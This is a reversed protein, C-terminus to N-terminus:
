GDQMLGVFKRMSAFTNDEVPFIKAVKVDATVQLAAREVQLREEPSDISWFNPLVMRFFQLDDEDAIIVYTRGEAKFVLDGDEDVNPFYGEHRLHDQMAQIQLEKSV